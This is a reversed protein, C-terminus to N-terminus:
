ARLARRRIAEGSAPRLCRSTPLSAEWLFGEATFRIDVRGGLEYALGHEILQRGFASFRREAAAPGGREQWWLRLMPEEGDEPPEVSWRVKVTGESGTLSGHRMADTVLEHTTMAMMPIANPTLVADTGGCEFSNARGDAVAAIESGILEDIGVGRVGRSTMLDHTRALVQLRGDLIDQLDDVEDADDLSRVIMSRIMALTNKVRHNLEALLFLKQEESRRSETTELGAMLLGSVQGDANRSPEIVFEWVHEGGDRGPLAMEVRAPQESELVEQKMRVLEDALKTPLLDHDSRGAADGFPTRQDGGARWVYRLERDITCVVLPAQEVTLRLREESAKLLEEQRKLETIDVFTMVLGDIVDDVTRYPLMRMIFVSGDKVVIDRERPELDALVADVDDVLDAYDLHGVIDTLPRGVDGERLRFIRRATPTFLRVRLSRDLFVTAIRTSEFLNKLDSNSQAVEDIKGRLESNVIELEENTSQLEEKSTELEENAAQLEENMSLLEENSSKLEENATELEEVATRLEEQLRLMEGELEQVTSAPLRAEATARGQDTASRQFVVLLVSDQGDRPPLPQVSLDIWRADGGDLHQLQGRRVPRQTRTAENLLVRLHTKLDGKAMELLNSSPVGPTVALYPSTRSSFYLVNFAHDVVVHAPAFHELVASEIRRALSPRQEVRPPPALQRSSQGLAVLPFVGAASQVERRLFIRQPAAVTEFLNAEHAASESPGLVLYGGPRLAYHFLQLVRRQLDPKMDILVNRCSVLDLRAFPPDTTLDHQSFICTERIATVVRLGDDEPAFWRECRERGIQDVVSPPYRGRRATELAWPDIDTGFVQIRVALDAAQAFETLFMALSYAEEGTGCGPVWIRLGMGPKKVSFLAPAVEETLAKFMKPERLFETVGILLDHFLSEAETADSVLHDLYDDVSAFRLIKLRREIRRILTGSRYQSFDHGVRDKLVRYVLPLSGQLAQRLLKADGDSAMGALHRFHDVLRAPIRAAPLLHDVLGAVDASKALGDQRTVGGMQAITLGGHEKVTILGSSGGEVGTLVVCAARDGFGEALARFLGDVVHAPSIPPGTRVIGDDFSVRSMPQVVYIRDPALELGDTAELVEHQSRRSLAADLENSVTPEGEQVIVVAVGFEPPIAGLLSTVGDLRGRAVGVGVVGFREGRVDRTVLAEREDSAARQDLAM